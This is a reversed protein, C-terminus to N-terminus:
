ALFLLEEVSYRKGLSMLLDEIIETLPNVGPQIINRDINPLQLTLGSHNIRPLLIRFLRM